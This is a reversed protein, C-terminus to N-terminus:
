IMKLKELVDELLDNHVKSSGKLIFLDSYTVELYRELRKVRYELTQKELEERMKEFNLSELDNQETMKIVM